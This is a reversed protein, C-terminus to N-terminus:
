QDYSDSCHQSEHRSGEELAECESLAKCEDCELAECEGQRTQCAGQIGQATGKVKDDANVKDAM